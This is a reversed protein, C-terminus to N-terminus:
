GKVWLTVTSIVMQGSKPAGLCFFPQLPGPFTSQTYTHLHSGGNVNYFSVEGAEFDLFVGMHSPPETLTIPTPSSVLPVYKKGKCLQVVWFGNEPSKPVREKRSVNDRCVGLAWLADGTLNMGVEWYHRGSSFIQRGVACPYALFRDKSCPTGDPPTSLYHRQRSEYLILYPYATAPDPVVDEQFTKLVDIQGPVRCVTRLMTPTTEPYQVSVSNKRSLPDKMDQLMQLPERQSRDELRLLLTELAHRQQELAEASERLRAATIEEEQRLAQLLRQQEEELLVGVKGFEVLIRRRRDEVKEQWKALTLQERTQLKQTKAMEARLSGMDEELKLKHEQVAEEVPIVRHPRHERSERCVVCIPSQDDECFLKLLEQHVKCLDRSQLGPHQQAMEAVKTLLRNPRLNRQPSLERCEPCPFSGKHKRRGKKGKAKEWTLQICERCFNHGCTTMVPDTFYDLCISCTAEEQIKRALEVADM